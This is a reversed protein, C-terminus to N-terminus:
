SANDLKRYLEQIRADLEGDSLTTTTKSEIPGGNPGSAEMREIWLRLHKGLLELARPKDWLKLKKTHGIRERDAGRGEFLEEIEVSSIARRASETMEALPRLSGDEAFLDGIDSRAISLLERLVTDADIGTRTSRLRQLDQVAAEINGKALMKAAQTRATRESYGARVAAQTANLDVLYEECFARQKPELGYEDLRRSGYYPRKKKTKRRTM